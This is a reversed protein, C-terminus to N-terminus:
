IEIMRLYNRPQHHVGVIDAVGRRAEVGFLRHEDTSEVSHDIGLHVRKRERERRWHIGLRSDTKKPELTVKALQSPYINKSTM